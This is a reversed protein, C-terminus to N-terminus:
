GEMARVGAGAQCEHTSASGESGKDYDAEARSYHRELARVCAGPHCEHDETGSEFGEKEDAKGRHNSREVERFDLDLRLEYAM